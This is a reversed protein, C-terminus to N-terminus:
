GSGGLSLVSFRSSLVSGMACPSVDGCDLGSPAAYILGPRLGQTLGFGSEPGAPFGIRRIV